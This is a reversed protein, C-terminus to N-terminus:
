EIVEDARGQLTIPVTLGLAKATKFNIILEIKTVQQVPLDAAREGNLIRGAYVGVLRYPETGSAGYGMLGGSRAFSLSFIAPIANRVTLAALQAQRAGFFNDTQILLGGARLQGLTAFARDFEREASAHLIHVELGLKIAAAQVEKSVSEARPNAPDALVAISTVSPVMEHLLELRKPVLEANLASVGTLNAGPRNLSAVIGAQVPDAGSRFVIPISATAAKAALASPAGGPAVIVSVRRRVLEAALEPLRDYHGEAWRYEIVVNRRDVYGTQGLGESFAHLQSTWVQPSESGLFGLVPLGPQQAYASLPWAAAAGGLLTIFNRRQIM